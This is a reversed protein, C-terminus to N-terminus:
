KEKTRQIYKLTLLVKFTLNATQAEKPLVETLDKGRSTGCKRNRQIGKGHVYICICM